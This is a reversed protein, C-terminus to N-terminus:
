DAQGGLIAQSQPLSAGRTLALVVQLYINLSFSGFLGDASASIIIIIIIIFLASCLQFSLSPCAPPSLVPCSSGSLDASLCIGPCLGAM